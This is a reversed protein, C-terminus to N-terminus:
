ASLLSSHVYSAEPPNEITDSQQHAHTPVGKVDRTFGEGEQPELLRKSGDLGADNVQLDAAKAVRVPTGVDLQQADISHEQQEKEPDFHRSQPMNLM